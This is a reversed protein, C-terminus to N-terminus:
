ITLDADQKMEIGKRVINTAIMFFFFFALHFLDPTGLAVSIIRNGKGLHITSIITLLATQLPIYLTYCLAIASLRSFLKLTRDTFIHEKQVRTLINIMCFCGAIVLLMSVSEVGFGLLRQWWHFTTTQHPNYHLGAALRAGQSLDSQITAWKTITGLLSFMVVLLLTVKSWLLVNKTKM